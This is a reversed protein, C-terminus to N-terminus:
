GEILEIVVPYILAVDRNLRHVKLKTEYDDAIDELIDSKRDVKVMKKLIADFERGESLRDLESNLGCYKDDLEEIRKEVKELKNEYKIANWSNYVLDSGWCFLFTTGVTIATNKTFRGVYRLGKRIYRNSM